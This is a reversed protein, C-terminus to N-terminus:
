PINPLITPPTLEGGQPTGRKSRKGGSRRRKGEEDEEGVGAKVWPKSGRLIPRDSLRRAGLSLLKDHPITDFYQQLDADCVDPHATYLAQGIAGVAQHADRNPRCGCSWEECDAEFSPESVIKVARQAGRDRITPIGM